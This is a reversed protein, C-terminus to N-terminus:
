RGPSRNPSANFDSHNRVMTFPLTFTFNKVSCLEMFAYQSLPLTTWANKVGARSPPLRDAEHEPWRVGLSCGRSGTPYSVPHAESGTQVRHLLNSDRLGALLLMVYILWQLGVHCIHIWDV